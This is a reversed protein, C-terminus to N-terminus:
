SRGHSFCPGEELLSLREASVKATPTTAKRQKLRAQSPRSGEAQRLSASEGLHKFALSVRRRRSVLRLAAILLREWSSVPAQASVSSTPEVRSRRVLWACGSLVRNVVAFAPRLCRSCALVGRYVCRVCPRFAVGLLFALLLLGALRAGAWRPQPGRLVVLNEESGPVWLAGGAM